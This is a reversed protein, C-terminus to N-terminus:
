ATARRVGCGTCLRVSIMDELHLHQLDNYHLVGLQQLESEYVALPTGEIGTIGAVVEAPRESRRSSSSSGTLNADDRNLLYASRHMMRASHTGNHSIIFPTCINSGGRVSWQTRSTRVAAAAISAAPMSRLAHHARLLRPVGGAITRM